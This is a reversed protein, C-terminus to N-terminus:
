LTGLGTSTRLDARVPGVTSSGAVWSGHPNDDPLGLLECWHLLSQQPEGISRGGFTHAMLMSPGGDGLCM